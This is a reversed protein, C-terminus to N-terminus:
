HVQSGRLSDYRIFVAKDITLNKINLDVKALRCLPAIQGLVALMAKIM